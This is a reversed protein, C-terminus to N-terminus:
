FRSLDPWAAIRLEVPIRNSRPADMAQEGRTRQDFRWLEGYAPPLPWDAASAPPDRGEQMWRRALMWGGHGIVVAADTSQWSSARFLMVSLAEGGGPRHHLFDTCWDDVEAQEIDAWRRGDWAGFDFEALTPDMRHMWGWRRLWRGVDASRRLNSTVVIRPLNEVRAVRQVRRALRKAKRRDVPVDTIGICRGATAM